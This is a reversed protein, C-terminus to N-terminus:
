IIQFPLKKRKYLIPRHFLAPCQHGEGPRPSLHLCEAKRSQTWPLTTVACTKCVHTPQTWSLTTVAYMKYVHTLGSFCNRPILVSLYPSATLPSDLKRTLDQSMVELMAAGPLMNQAICWSSHLSLVRHM